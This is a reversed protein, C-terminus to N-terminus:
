ADEPEELSYISKIWRLTPKLLELSNKIGLLFLLRFIFGKVGM